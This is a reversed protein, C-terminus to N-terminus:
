YWFLIGSCSVLYFVGGRQMYCMSSSNSRSSYLFLHHGSASWTEGGWLQWPGLVLGPLHYSPFLNLDLQPMLLVPCAISLLSKFTLFKGLSNDLFPFPIHFYRPLFTIVLRSLMNLLLCMVKGVFTRRTLAITKGTTMYPHSFQVTFFNSCWYISAKSSHHQLLSKLAGQVALDTRPTWQFSQHQLQFELLKTVEHSSSVWQFLGQHQSPNPAPPSPLHNSPMVLEISMPRLLSWFNTVSLSAQRAAIWPTVFLWVRSLSQVSSLDAFHHRQKKISQRPKDYSEEWPALM